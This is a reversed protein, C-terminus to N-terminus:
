VPAHRCESVTTNAINRYLIWACSLTLAGLVLVGAPFAPASVMGRFAAGAGPAAPFSAGADILGQSVGLFAEQVRNWLFSGLNSLTVLPNNAFLMYAIGAVASAPGFAIGSAAALREERRPWVGSFAGRVRVRSGTTEPLQVRAMVREAFGDAPAFEPLRALALGLRHWGTLIRAAKPDRAALVALARAQRTTLRGDLMADFASSTPGHSSGRSLWTWLRRLAVPRTHLSAIVSVELDTPPVIPEMSKMAAFLTRFARLEAALVPNAVAEAEFAARAAPGMEGDLYSFLQRTGSDLTEAKTPNRKM